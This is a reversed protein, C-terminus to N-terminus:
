GANSGVQMQVYVSMARLELTVRCEPLWVGGVEPIETISRTMDHHISTASLLGSVPSKLVLFM